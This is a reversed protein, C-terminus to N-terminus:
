ALVREYIEEAQSIRAEWTHEEKARAQAARGRERCGVEDQRAQQLAQALEAVATAQDPMPVRWGVLEDVILAPAGFDMGIVPRGCAMAQLLEAAGSGDVSPMCFVDAACIRETALAAPLAGHWSVVKGLRLTQAMQQWASAMPGEGVVDLLVPVRQEWLRAMAQLLLPLGKGRQLAGAFCVRLVQPPRPTPSATAYLHPEVTDELLPECRGHVPPPLAAAVAFSPVLVVESRRLSGGLRELLASLRRLKPTDHKRDRKSSQFPTPPPVTWRLPGRVIPLGLRHLRTPFEAPMMLHLVEWPNGSATEHQLLRLAQADFSLWDLSGPEGPAQKVPPFLWRALRRLPASAHRAPEIYFVRAHRPRQPVAEIAKRNAAWTVLDVPRREALSLFWRWAFQAAPDPGPACQPAVLLLAAKAARAQAERQALAAGIIGAPDRGAPAAAGEAPLSAATQAELLLEGDDPPNQAASSGAAARLLSKFLM